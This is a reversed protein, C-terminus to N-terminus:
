LFVIKQLTNNDQIKDEIRQILQLKNAHLTHKLPATEIKVFLTGSKFFVSKTKQLVAEPMLENWANVVAAGLLKHRYPSQELMTTFLGEISNPSM